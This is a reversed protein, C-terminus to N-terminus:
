SNLCWFLVNEFETFWAMTQVALTFLYEHFSTTVLM